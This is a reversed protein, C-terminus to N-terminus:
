KTDVWNDMSVHESGVIRGVICPTICRVFEAVDEPKEGIMQAVKPVGRRREELTPINKEKVAKFLLLKLAIRGMTLEDLKDSECHMGNKM